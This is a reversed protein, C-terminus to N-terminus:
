RDKNGIVSRVVSHRPGGGHIMPYPTLIRDIEDPDTNTLYGTDPDISSGPIVDVSNKLLTEEFERKEAPNLGAELEIIDNKTEEVLKFLQKEKELKALSRLISSQGGSAAISSNSNIIDNFIDSKLHSNIILRGVTSNVAADVSTFNNSDFADNYPDNDIDNLTVLEDDKESMKLNSEAVTDINNENKQSALYAKFDHVSRSSPSELHYGEIYNALEEERELAKRLLGKKELFIASLPAVAKKHKIPKMDQDFKYVLPIGNPIKVKQIEITGVNDIHKVIGRLSNCHAVILVNRGAQLDLKIQSDWLPMTRDITDQLSETLPILKPDLNQYKLEKGHWHIHDKTM